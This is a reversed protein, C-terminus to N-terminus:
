SIQRKIRNKENKTAKIVGKLLPGSDKISKITKMSDYMEKELIILTMSGSACIGPELIKKPNRSGGSSITSNNVKISNALDCAM